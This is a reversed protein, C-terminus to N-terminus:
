AACGNVSCGRHTSPAPAAPVRISPLEHQLAARLKELATLQIQRIRERSLNLMKGVAGLTAPRRGAVRLIRQTIVLREATSLEARNEALIVGLRDLAADNSEKPPEAESAFLAQEQEIKKNMLRAEQTKRKALVHFARIISRCAYTSFRFGMWPNFGRATRLLALCGDSIVDAEDLDARATRRKMDYVLGLNARVLVDCMTDYQEILAVATRDRADSGSSVHLDLAFATAHLARFARVESVGDLDNGRCVRRAVCLLKKRYSERRLWPHDVFALARDGVSFEKISSTAAMTTRGEEELSGPRACSKMAFRNM